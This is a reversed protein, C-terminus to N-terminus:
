KRVVPNRTAAGNYPGLVLMQDDAPDLMYFGTWNYYPLREPIERVLFEQLETLGEARAARERLEAVIGAFVTESMGM